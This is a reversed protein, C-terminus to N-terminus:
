GTDAAGEIGAHSPDAPAIASQALLLSMRQLM